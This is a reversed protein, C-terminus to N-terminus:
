PQQHKDRGIVDGGITIDGDAHFVIIGAPPFYNTPADPKSLATEVEKVGRHTISVTGFTMHTALGENVLYTETQDRTSDDWGLRSQVEAFSFRLNPDGDSMEYLTRLYIFRQARKKVISDM